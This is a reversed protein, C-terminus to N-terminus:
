RHVQEALLDVPREQLTRSELSDFVFAIEGGPESGALYRLAGHHLRWRSRAKGTDAYVARQAALVITPYAASAGERELVLDTMENTRLELSRIAYVWGGGARNRGAAARRRVGGRGRHVAAARHPSVFDGVGERGDAGFTEGACRRHLRHRVAGRRAARPVDKGASRVRHGPHPLRAAHDSVRAALRAGRLSRSYSHSILFAFHSITVFTEHAIECESNRM